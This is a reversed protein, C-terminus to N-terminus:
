QDAELLAALGGLPIHIWDPRNHLEYRLEYLVKEMQALALLGRVDDFSEYMGSPAAAAAYANLFADRTAKEWRELAPGLRELGPETRERMQTSGRAYSFSRLMGAVDRLPTHKRRAEALPRSPEGEFDIILFDNNALLVQGLHYDGHHRSKRALRRPAPCGDIFAFFERRRGVVERAQDNGQLLNLTAGAEERVRARWAEVDQATLLEPEFAPDGSRMAFACHLEATRMALAQILTLYAGHTDEPRRTEIFRELYALTYSWGDGQNPVYAQLLALAAPEGQAPVYELAGALPVCNPFRAVETLFRGVELEPHVGPRVRRYCKLFLREGLMVSTNTSQAHLRGLHLTALEDRVLEAFAHTRTFKLAGRQTELTRGEGMAKVVHRWFSEDAVADAMVGVNAQQRVRAVTAVSLAKMQDEDDEWALALPLFYSCDRVELWVLLWSIAGVSWVAYDRIEARGAPEGKRAYWRQAELFPPLVQTELHARLKEAMGIRWPVVKDRFFSTWSDFLVLM